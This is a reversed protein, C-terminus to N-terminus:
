RAANSSEGHPQPLVMQEGRSSSGHVIAKKMDFKCISQLYPKGKVILKPYLYNGNEPGYEEKHYYM